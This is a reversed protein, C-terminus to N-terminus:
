VAPKGRRCRTLAPLTKGIYCGGKLKIIEKKIYEENVGEDPLIAFFASGSGSMIINDGTYLSKIQQKFQYLLPYNKFAVDELRNFFHKKVGEFDNIKLAGLLLKASRKKKTLGAKNRPLGAQECGISLCCSVSKYIDATSIPFNPWIILIRFGAFDEVPTIVEGRETGLCTGGYIFFPVDMGLQRGLDALEELSFNLQWLQNLGRLVAAANSSGGGLGRAAPIRKEIFIEIGGNNKKAKQQILKAAKYAINDEKTINLSPSVKIDIGQEAKKRILIEDHLDIEQFITEINHYGDPRKGIVELFLNVKASSIVKLENSTTRWLCLPPRLSDEAVTYRKNNEKNKLSHTYLAHNKDRVPHLENM